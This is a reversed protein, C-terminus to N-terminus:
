ATASRAIGVFNLIEGLLTDIPDTKSVVSQIGAAKARKESVMDKHLTFLIMPVKPFMEHLIAAAEIGNMKPMCFDLIVLDPKVERARQVAELGDDAEACAIYDLRTEVVSRVLNRVIKSDNVLFIKKPM